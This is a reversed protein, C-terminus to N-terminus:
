STMLWPIGLDMMSPEYHRYTVALDHGSNEAALAAVFGPAVMVDTLRLERGSADGKIRRVSWAEDGGTLSSVDVCNLPIALGDGSAKLVAEKRVWLKFFTELRMSEPCCEVEQIEAPTFNVVAFERVEPFSGIREIDIGVAISRGFAFAAVGASHSMSFQLATEHARGVVYPKGNSGSCIEVEHPACKMYASLLLRLIGHRAVYRNRDRAFRFRVSRATEAVSLFGSYHQIEVETCDVGAVWIDVRGPKLCGEPFIANIDDSQNNFLGPIKLSLLV